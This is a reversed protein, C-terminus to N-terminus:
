LQKFMELCMKKEKDLSNKYSTAAKKLLKNIDSDFPKNAQAAILCKQASEYEGVDMYAQGCRYLAKTNAPDIELAKNAYKLAKNPRDLRLETLSLNMYLPLLATKIREKEAGIQTERNGLLELAQKYHDKANDYRSKAFIHNGFSRLASVVELLASLPVANQEVPSMACFDDVKGSDLVDIIHIEFLVVASAPVMPPCGIAGYAYQPQCLFRSFEGKQMTLVSLELGALTLDKGLKMLPPHKYDRTSTFPESCYELYGSYNLILSANQPVPPGEGPRIMEKLIGGDGM